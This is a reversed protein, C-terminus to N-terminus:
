GLKICHSILSSCKQAEWFLLLNQSIFKLHAVKESIDNTSYVSAHYHTSPFLHLFEWDEKNVDKDIQLCDGNKCNEPRGTCSIIYYTEPSTLSVNEARNLLM